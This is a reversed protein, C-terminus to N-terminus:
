TRDEKKDASESRPSEDLGRSRVIASVSEDIWDLTAQLRRLGFQLTIAPYLHDDPVASPYDPFEKQFEADIARLAELRHRFHERLSRLFKVADRPDDLEQLFFTQALYPIRLDGIDPGAALWTLLEKRGRATRQYVKRDPGKGSPVTKRTLLGEEKLRGLTTYIQSQEADWFHSLSQDFLKKLEYGTAPEDLLGLLIHTLAM